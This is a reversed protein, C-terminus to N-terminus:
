IDLSQLPHQLPLPMSVVCFNVLEDGILQHLMCCAGFPCDGEAHWTYIQVLKGIWRVAVAM